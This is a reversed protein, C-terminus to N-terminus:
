EDNNEPSAPTQADLDRRLEVLDALVLEIAKAAELSMRSTDRHETVLARLEKRLLQLDAEFVPGSTAKELAVELARVRRALDANERRLATVGLRSRMREALRGRLRTM